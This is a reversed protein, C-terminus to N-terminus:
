HSRSIAFNAIARLNERAEESRVRGAAGLATEIYSEAERESSEVAGTSQLMELVQEIKGDTLPPSAIIKALERGVAEDKLALLMPLTVVGEKLDTALSKGIREEDGSVDLIDDFIQFAMGLAYGYERVAEVEDDTTRSVLAGAECSAAFLAATKNRVRRLYGSLSQGPKFAARLEELEGVSLDLSARAVVGVVAKDGLEALLRFATAFVFDGTATAALPGQSAAITPQGRRTAANDLVDDHILSAMHVLEVALGVPLLRDPVYEGCQGSVFVLAPRLRKGGARITEVASGTLSAHDSSVVNALETEVRGLASDVTDSLLGKESM